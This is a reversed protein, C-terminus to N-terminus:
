GRREDPTVSPRPRDGASAANAAAPGAPLRVDLDTHQMKARGDASEAIWQKGQAARLVLM